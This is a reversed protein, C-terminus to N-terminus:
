EIADLDLRAVTEVVRAWVDAAVGSPIGPADTYVRGTKRAERAYTVIKDRTERKACVVFQLAAKMSQVAKGADEADKEAVEREYRLKELYRIAQNPNKSSALSDAQEILDEVRGELEAVRTEAQENVRTLRLVEAELLIASASMAEARVADTEAKSMAGDVDRMARELQIRKHSEECLQSECQELREAYNDARERERHLEISRDRDRINADAIIRNLHEVEETLDQRNLYTVENDRLCLKLEKCRAKLEEIQGDRREVDRKLEQISEKQHIVLAERQEYKDRIEFFKHLTVAAEHRAAEASEHEAELESQLDRCVAQAQAAALRAAQAERISAHSLQGEGAEVMANLRAKTKALEQRLKTAEANADEERRRANRVAERADDEVERLTRKVRQTEDVTNHAIEGQTANSRALAAAFEEQMREIEAAHREKLIQIERANAADEMRAFTLVSDRMMTRAASDNGRATHVAAALAESKRRSERLERELSKNAAATEELDSRVRVMEDRMESLEEDVYAKNTQVDELLRKTETLSDTAGALDDRLTRERERAEENERELRAGEASLRERDERAQALADRMEEWERERGETVSALREELVDREREKECRLTELERTLEVVEREAHRKLRESVSARQALQNASELERERHVRAETEKEARSEAESARAQTEFVGTTLGRAGVCGRRWRRRERDVGRAGVELARVARATMARRESAM